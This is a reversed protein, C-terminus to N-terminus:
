EQRLDEIVEGLGSRGREKAAFATNTEIYAYAYPSCSRSNTERCLDISWCSLFRRMQCPSATQDTRVCTTARDVLCGSLYTGPMGTREGEFSTSCSSSTSYLLMTVSAPYEKLESVVSPLM